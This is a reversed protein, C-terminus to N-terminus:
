AAVDSQLAAHADALVRGSREIVAASLLSLPWVAPLDLRKDPQLVAQPPLGQEPNHDWGWTGAAVKLLTDGVYAAFGDIFGMDTGAAARLARGDPYRALALTELQKLSGVSHDFPFEDPLAIEKLCGLREELREVWGLLEMGVATPATGRQSPRASGESPRAATAAIDTPPKRMPTWSPDEARREQAVEQMSSYVREFANGDRTELADVLLLYPQAVSMAPFGLREDLLIVPHSTAGHKDGDDWM